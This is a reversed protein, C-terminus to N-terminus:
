PLFVSSQDVGNVLRRDTHLLFLFSANRIRALCGTQLIPQM